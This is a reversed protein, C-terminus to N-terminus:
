PNVWLKFRVQVPDAVSGTDAWDGEGVAFALRNVTTSGELSMAKGDPKSAFAIVIPQAKGKINLQGRAEYRGGGVAKFNSASFKAQPFSPVNFWDKKKLEVNADANGADVSALDVVVDVKGAEPKAPDFNLNVAFKKFEGEVPVNMQKFTFRLQSKAVDVSQAYALLPNLLGVSLALAALRTLRM